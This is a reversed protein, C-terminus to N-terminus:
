AALEDDGEDAQSVLEASTAGRAIRLAEIVRDFTPGDLRRPLEWLGVTKRATWLEYAIGVLLRGGGSMTDTERALGEFDVDDDTVFPATRHAILPADLVHRVAAHEAFPFPKEMTCGGATTVTLNATWTSPRDSPADDSPLV